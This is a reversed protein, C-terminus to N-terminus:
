VVSKRDEMILAVRDGVKLEHRSILAGAITAAQHEFAAYTLQRGEFTIAPSQGRHRAVTQLTQSLNM